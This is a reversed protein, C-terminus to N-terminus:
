HYGYKQFKIKGTSTEAMMRKYDDRQLKLEAKTFSENPNAQGPVYTGQQLNVMQNQQQIQANNTLNGYGASMNGFTSPDQLSTYNMYTLNDPTHQVQVPNKDVYEINLIVTWDNGQFDVPHGLEDHIRLSVKTISLGQDIYTIMPKPPTYHVCAGYSSASIPIVGITNGTTVRAGPIKYKSPVNEMDVTLLQPGGLNLAQQMDSIKQEFITPTAYGSPVPSIYSYAGTANHFLRLEIGKKNTNLNGNDALSTVNIPDSNPDSYTTLGLQDMLPKTESDYLLGFSRYEYTATYTGLVGKGATPGQFQLKSQDNQNVIFPPFGTNNGPTTNLSTSDGYVGLGRYINKNGVAPSFNPLTGAGGAPVVNGNCVGDANLYDLLSHLDYHNPPVTVEITDM